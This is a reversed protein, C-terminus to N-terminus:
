NKGFGEIWGHAGEVNTKLGMDAYWTSKEFTAGNVQPSPRLQVEGGRRYVPTLKTPDVILMKDRLDGYNAWDRASHLVLTGWHTRLKDVQWGFSINQVERGSMQVVEMRLMSDKVFAHLINRVTPGCIAHKTGEGYFFFPELIDNFAEWTLAVGSVDQRNTKIRRVIGDTMTYQYGDSADTGVFRTSFLLSSQIQRRFDRQTEKKAMAWDRGSWQKLVKDRETIAVSASMEQTYNYDTEDIYGRPTGDQAGEPRAPALIVLKAGTLIASGVGGNELGRQVNALTDTTTNINSALWPIRFREGTTPNYLTQGEQLRAAEGTGLVITTETGLPYATAGVIVFSPAPKQEWIEFRYNDITEAKGGLFTMLTVLPAVGGDRQLVSKGDGDDDADWRVLEEFHTPKISAALENTTTRGRANQIQAAFGAPAITQLAM